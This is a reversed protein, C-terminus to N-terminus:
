ANWVFKDDALVVRCSWTKVVFPPRSRVLATILAFTQLFGGATTVSALPIERHNRWEDQYYLHSIVGFKPNHCLHTDYQLYWWTYKLNVIFCFFFRYCKIASKPNTVYFNNFLIKPIGKKLRVTIQINKVQSAEVQSKWKVQRTIHDRTLIIALIFSIQSFYSCWFYFSKPKM